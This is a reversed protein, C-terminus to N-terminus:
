IQHMLTFNIETFPLKLHQDLLQIRSNNTHINLDYFLSPVFIFKFFPLALQQKRNILFM